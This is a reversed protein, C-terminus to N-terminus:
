RPAQPAPPLGPSGTGMQLRRQVDPPPGGEASPISSPSKTKWFFIAGVVVLVVVIVAVAVGPSIEKRM